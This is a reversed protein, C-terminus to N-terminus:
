QIVAIRQSCIGKQTQVRVIYSGSAINSLNIVKSLYSMSEVLIVKGQLNYITITTSSSPLASLLITLDKNRQDFRTDVQISKSFEDVGTAFDKIFVTKSSTSTGCPGTAILTVTYSGPIAFIHSPNEINSVSGDGFNWSYTSMPGTNTSTSLFTIKPSQTSDYTFASVISPKVVVSMTQTDACRLGDPNILAYGLMNCTLSVKYTGANTYIHSPKKEYVIPSADGFDWAYTSDVTAGLWQKNFSHINFVKNELISASSNNTFSLSTGVCADNGTSFDAQFDYSVVPMFVFEAVIGNVDLMTEWYGQYDYFSLGEQTTTSNPDNIVADITDNLTENKLSIAFTDSISIPTPFTVTYNNETSNISVKGSALLQKPVFGGSEVTWLGLTAMQSTSGGPNLRGYFMIGSIKLQHTNPFATSALESPWVPLYEFKNNGVVEEKYYIYDIIDPGCSTTSAKSGMTKLENPRSRHPAPEHSKTRAVTQAQTLGYTMTFVTSLLLLKKKM